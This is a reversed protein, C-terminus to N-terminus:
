FLASAIFTLTETYDNASPTLVKTKAKITIEGRANVVPANTSTFIPSATTTITGVIDSAGAYPAVAAFPGGSGQTVSLSRLGFGEAVGTLDASVGSITYGATASYLGGTGGLVYVNGGSAANTTLDIWVSDTSTVITGPALSGLSVSYPAATEEDITSVDIDFSLTVGLTAATATPGYPGETYDGQRAKVKVKYTTNETLGVIFEGTGSGWNTYTQWDEAGLTAGVTNDSQVYETTVFDDDSIAIAYETDTPNNAINVIIHLKNYHNSANTFTPATPTNAMQSFLLGPWSDYTTGDLRGASTQGAISQMSYTGSAGVGGGAGFSHTDLKFNTSAPVAFFLLLFLKTTIKKM